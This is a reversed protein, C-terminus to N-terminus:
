TGTRFVVTTNSAAAGGSVSNLGLGSSDQVASSITLTYLESAGFTAAPFFFAKKNAGDYVVTGGMAGSTVGSLTINTANITSALMAESFVIEIVATTRSVAVAGNAPTTGTVTPGTADTETVVVNWFLTKGAAVTNGPIDVTITATGQDPTVDSRMAFSLSVPGAANTSGIDTSSGGLVEGNDSSVSITTGDPPVQGRVDQVDVRFTKVAQTDPLEIDLGPNAMISSVLLTEPTTSTDYLSILQDESAMVLTGSSRVHILAGTPTCVGAGPTFCLTGNYFGDAADYFGDVDFDKYEEIADHTTDEDDDRWAEALDTFNEGDDFRGNGNTDTFGEEGTAFALITVRANSPRPAQSRWTVTCTGNLTTCSGDIAGGEAEFAVSTGDPAPNQFHDAAFITIPVEVGNYGWANPNLTGFTIDFSNQDPLGTSIAVAVSTTSIGTSAVTATVVVSGNVTGSKVVTQVEGSANTTNFAPALTTDGAGSSSLTFDVRQNPLPSGTSDYVTFVITSTESLGSGGTGQIAIVEQSASTFQISGVAASAVTLNATATYTTGGISASATLVDTGACGAALYTSSATGNVTTVPSDMTASGAQTCTSTFTVNNPSTYLANSNSTEVINVSAVVTGGASLTTVGGLDIADAVFSVGSGSGMDLTTTTVAGELVQYSVEDTATEGLYTVTVTATEAGATSGAILGITAVGSADTLDTNAPDFTALSGSSTATVVVDAVVAGSYTVTAVLQGPNSPSISNTAVGTATQLVVSISLNGITGGGTGTDGPTTFAEDGGCGALALGILGTFLLALTKSFKGM